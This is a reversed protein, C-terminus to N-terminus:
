KYGSHAVSYIYCMKNTKFFTGWLAGKSRSSHLSHLSFVPLRSRVSQHQPWLPYQCIRFETLLGVYDEGRRLFDLGSSLFHSISYKLPEFVAGQFGPHMEWHITCQLQQGFLLQSATEISQTYLCIWTHSKSSNRSSSRAVWELIRAQLIGHVSSGPLSCDMPNCLSPCSQHSKAHMCALKSSYTNIYTCTSLRVAEKTTWITFFRGAIYSVWM